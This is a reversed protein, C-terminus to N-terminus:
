SHMILERRLGFGFKHSANLSREIVDNEVQSLIRRGKALTEAGVESGLISTHHIDRFAERMSEDREGIIGLNKIRNVLEVRWVMLPSDSVVIWSEHEFPRDNRHDNRVFVLAISAEIPSPM